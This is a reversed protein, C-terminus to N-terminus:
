FSLLFILIIEQFSDRIADKIHMTVPSKENKIIKKDFWSMIYDTDVEIGISLIEEKEGRNMALVRHPKIFKIKEQYDYYMEYIKNDDSAKKKM